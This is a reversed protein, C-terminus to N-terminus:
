FERYLMLTLFIYFINLYQYISLCKCGGVEGSPTTHGSRYRPWHHQDPADHWNWWLAWAHHVVCFSCHLPCCRGNLHLCVDLFCKWQLILLWFHYANCQMVRALLSTEPYETLNWCWKRLRGLTSSGFDEDKLRKVFSREIDKQSESEKLNYPSMLIFINEYCFIGKSVGWYKSLIKSCLM